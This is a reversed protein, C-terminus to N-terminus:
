DTSTRLHMAKRVYKKLAEGVGGSQSGGGSMLLDWQREMSMSDWDVGCVGRVEDFLESRLDRFYNCCLIFHKEDEVEGSGCQICVRDEQKEVPRKWRGTEIRLKNTGTRIATLLYRGKKEKESLLYKEMVLNKKFTRYTRLKTKKEMGKKWAGEEILHFQNRLRTVWYQMVRPLTRTLADMGVPFRILNENEWLNLMEYKKLLDYIEYCWNHVRQNMFLERSALYVRRVLRTDEMLCVKFWYKLKLFERRTQLRWWGLEGLVAENTTKGHCRLIRRGMERQVREAEEWSASKGVVAGYELVSRVLAEYLNVGAKVSLSGYQMGMRWVKSVNGRAKAVVRQRFDEQSLRTDLEVGLYKYSSEQRILSKGLVWHYGCYCDGVECKGYTMCEAPKNNFVVVACKDYNFSFRWKRSYQYAIDMLKLLDSKNEAVLAIDDAFMLIGCRDIGSRIIRSGLNAKKVEEALGNIYLAFLIPSMLCGQRLGVDVNFFRTRRDNIIVSSEVSEYVSRLVRWLKGRIGYGYLKEWLGDRWVRDYAKQVDIFCVYTPNPRCNRIIEEMIFLQDDPCRGKRFGAQEEALINGKEAWETVRENLVSVYVKGLVSLLTIGRYKLPNHRWEEPGGKFLPFILGRAWDKPYKEDQFVKHCLRWTAEVVKEGGYMFIENMYDDIGVAKGRCMRKIARDIEERQIPRDLLGLLDNKQDGGGVKERVSERVRKAFEEDFAGVECEERGLKEFCKAWVEEVEKQGSVMEKAENMMTDPLNKSIQQMPDLAKLQKWYEKPDKSHLTEIRSVIKQDLRRKHRQVTAKRVKKAQRVVEWKSDNEQDQKRRRRQQSRRTCRM